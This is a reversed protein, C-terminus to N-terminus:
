YITKRNYYNDNEDDVEEYPKERLISFHDYCRASIGISAM